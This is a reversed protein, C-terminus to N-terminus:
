KLAPRRLAQNVMGHSLFVAIEAIIGTGPEELTHEIILTDLFITFVKFKEELHPSVLYGAIEGLRGGLDRIKKNTAKIQKNTEQIQEGTEKFLAKLEADTKKFMAKTEQSMRDIIALVDAVTATKGM